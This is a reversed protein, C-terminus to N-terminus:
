GPLMCSLENEQEVSLFSPFVVFELGAQLMHIFTLDTYMKTNLRMHFSKTYHLCKVNVCTVYRIIPKAAVNISFKFFSCFWKFTAFVANDVKLCRVFRM